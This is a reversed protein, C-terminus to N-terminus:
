EPLTGGAEADAIALRSAQAYDDLDPAAGLHALMGEASRFPPRKEAPAVRDEGPRPAPVLELRVRDGAHVHVGRRVLEEALRSDVVIEGAANSM